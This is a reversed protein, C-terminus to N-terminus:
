LAVFSPETIISARTAAYDFEKLICRVVRRASAGVVSKMEVIRMGGKAKVTIHHGDSERNM